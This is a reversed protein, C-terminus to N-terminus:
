IRSIVNYLNEDSELDMKKRLRYRSTEVGRISMNLFTAIEKTSKNMKIFTCLRHDNQNLNPFKKKLNSLFSEHVASFHTDFVELDKRTSIENEIARILKKIGYDRKSLNKELYLQQMEKKLNLMIENKHLINIMSNSLEESKHRLDQQLRENTLESIRQRAILQEEEYKKRKEEIEQQKKVEIARKEKKNKRIWYLRFLFVLLILFASYLLYAVLTRHPPPKIQFSYSAEGSELGSNDRAKVRFTYTGERLNNYEKISRFSWESWQEDFGDLRYSYSVEEQSEIMNSTLMFEFYNRKHSYAPYEREPRTRSSIEPPQRTNLGIIYTRYDKDVTSSCGANYHYFGRDMGFLVDDRDIVDIKGFIHTYSDSVLQFPRSVKKMQGFELSFYGIENMTVYWIRDYDDEFFEIMVDGIRLLDSYYDKREFKGAVPNYTFLGRDTSFVVRGDEGVISIESFDAGDEETFVRHEAIEFTRPDFRYRHLRRDEGRIWINGSEDQSFLRAYEMEDVKRVLELTRGTLRYLYFGRYTSQLYCCPLAFLSDIKWSGEFPSVLVAKNEEIRFLGEHHSCFLYGGSVCLDWVQGSSSAVPRINMDGMDRSRHEDWDMYYLGQNTGLYLKNRYFASVYGTGIDAESNIVSLCSNLYVYSIGYDLGLWLNHSNDALMSIVTNNQLGSRNNLHQVTEGESNLIYLGNRVTGVAYYQDDLRIAGSIQSEIIEPDNFEEHRYCGSMDASFVGEDDTFILFEGQRDPVIIDVIRKDAFFSGYPLLSVGEEGLIGLGKGSILVLMDEGLFQIYDVINGFILPVITDMDYRFVGRGARLYFNGQRELIQWIYGFDHFAPDLRDMLSRYGTVGPPGYRTFCGIERNGGVLIGSDGMQHVSRLYVDGPIDHSQWFDSGGELLPGNAAYILGNAGECIDWNQNGAKYDGPTFNTVLLRGFGNVNMTSAQGTVQMAMVTVLVTFLLLVSIKKIM